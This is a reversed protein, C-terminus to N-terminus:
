LQRAERCEPSHDTQVSISFCMDSPASIDLISAKVGQVLSVKSQGGLTDMERDKASTVEERVEGVRVCEILQKM